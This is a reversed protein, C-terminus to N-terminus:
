VSLMNEKFDMAADVRFSLLKLSVESEEEVELRVNNLMQDLTFRTLPYRREVLLILQTTTFTIIQVGYSELLKWSKVKAQGHVSRQIKYIQAHIDLKEFMAKQMKAAKEEQSENLRKIARSEEEDMQEKTKQLFAVNSDFYKKFIPRIDDYTMGNRLYIMMNKRAQAETQPKKKLAHYRKMAKDEKQKRQVHNIVEDWDINKNLEDELERAYEEDQKIQAQKKLPKPEEGLIGKGKNPTAILTSTAAITATPIPVDAATITTSAATVVETIIKKAHELDIKYIKEQSEAKRGQIDANDKVDASKEVAADKADTPVVDDDDSVVGEVAVGGANVNEVHVEDADEGVEQAVLMGEFLPTDVESFGKGSSLCIVTSAMSLSFENWSTRKASMCQLITHILLKWQSSFFAKYFTLKISPKEYGMRALDIFIEENPLCEVGEVDDLHLDDRISAETIVVKKKDVLAQLRTVDNVKKIAVSTWFQKICSVYINPNVTLAYKISSGNLFDIIQNFGESANSKTLYAIM